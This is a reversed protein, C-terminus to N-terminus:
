RLRALRTRIADDSRASIIKPFSLSAAAGIRVHQGAFTFSTPSTAHRAGDDGKAGHRPPTKEKPFRLPPKRSSAVAPFADILAAGELMKQKSVPDAMNGAMARAEKAHDRWYEPDNLHSSSM